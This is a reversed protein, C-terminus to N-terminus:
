MSRCIPCKSLTLGSKPCTVRQLIYLFIIRNSKKRMIAMKRWDPKKLLYESTIRLTIWLVGPPSQPQTIAPRQLCFLPAEREGIILVEIRAFPMLYLIPVFTETQVIEWENQARIITPEVFSGAGDIRNGGILVEGGQARATEIAKDFDAVASEDVLPGMPAINPSGDKNVTTVVGELIM